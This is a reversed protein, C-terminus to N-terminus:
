SQGPYNIVKFKVQAGDPLDRLQRGLDQNFHWLEAIPVAARSREPIPGGKFGLPPYIGYGCDGELARTEQEWGPWRYDGYFAALKGSLSWVIFESYGFKLSEWKWTDPAFYAIHGPSFGLGGGDVAFFGGLVDYGILLYPSQVGPKM